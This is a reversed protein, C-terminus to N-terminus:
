ANEVTNLLSFLTLMLASFSLILLNSAGSSSAGDSSIANSRTGNSANNNCFFGKKSGMQIIAEKTLDNCTLKGGIFVTQNNLTVDLNSCYTQQITVNKFTHDPDIGDTELFTQYLCDNACQDILSECTENKNRATINHVIINDPLNLKAM